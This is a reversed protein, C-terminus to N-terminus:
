VHLAAGVEHAYSLIIRHMLYIYISCQGVLAAIKAISTERYRYCATLIFLIGFASVAATVPGFTSVESYYVFYASPFFVAAHLPWSWGYRKSFALIDKSYYVAVQFAPLLRMVKLPFPPNAWEGYSASWVYLAASICLVPLRPLQASLATIFYAIALAYLFWMTSPPNWFISFAPYLDVLGPKVLQELGSRSFYLISSWIVFIWLLQGVKNKLINLLPATLISVAFIGAMFFFLPMRLFVLPGNFFLEEDFAHWFVVLLISIGRASDIYTERPSLVKSM